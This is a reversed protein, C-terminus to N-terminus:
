FSFTEFYIMEFQLKERFQLKILKQYEGISSPFSKRWNKGSQLKNIVRQARALPKDLGSDQIISGPNNFYSDNM